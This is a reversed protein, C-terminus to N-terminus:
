RGKRIIVGTTIIWNSGDVHAREQFEQGLKQLRLEQLAYDALRLVKKILLFM